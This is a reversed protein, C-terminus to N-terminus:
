STDQKLKCDASALAHSVCQDALGVWRTMDGSHLFVKSAFISLSKQTPFSSLFCIRKGIMPSLCYSAIHYAISRIRHVSNTDKFFPSGFSMEFFSREAFAAVSLGSSKQDQLTSFSSLQGDGGGHLRFVSGGLFSFWIWGSKCMDLQLCM